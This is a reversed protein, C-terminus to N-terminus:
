RRCLADALDIRQPDFLGLKRLFKGSPAPATPDSEDFSSQISAPDILLDTNGNPM